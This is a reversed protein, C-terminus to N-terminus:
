YNKKKISLRFPGLGLLKSTDKLQTLILPCKFTVFLEIFLLYM